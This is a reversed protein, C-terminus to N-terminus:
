DSDRVKAPARKQKEAAAKRDRNAYLLAAVLGASGIGMAVGVKTWQAPTMGRVSNEDKAPKRRGDGPTEPM